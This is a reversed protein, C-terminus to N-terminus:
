FHDSQDVFDAMDEAGLVDIVRSRDHVFVEVVPGFKVGLVAGHDFSVLEAWKAFLFRALELPELRELPELLELLALPERTFDSRRFMQFLACPFRTRPMFSQFRQFTQFSQFPKLRQQFTQFM